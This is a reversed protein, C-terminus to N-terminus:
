AAAENRDAASALIRRAIAQWRPDQAFMEPARELGLEVVDVFGTVPRGDLQTVSNRHDVRPEDPPSAARFSFLSKAAELATRPVDEGRLARRLLDAASERLQEDERVAKRLETEPRVSGGKRGIEVPDIRGSHVVCLGGEVARAGCREGRKNMGRCRQADPITM